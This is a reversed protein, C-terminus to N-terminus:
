DKWGNLNQKPETDVWVEVETEEISYGDDRMGDEVCEECYRQYRERVEDKDDDTMDFVENLNYEGALWENFDWDDQLKEDLRDDRMREYEEQTMVERDVWNIYVQVNRKIYAM